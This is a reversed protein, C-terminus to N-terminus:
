LKIRSVEDVPWGNKAKFRWHGFSAVVISVGTIVAGDSVLVPMVTLGHELPLYAGSSDCFFRTIKGDIRALIM